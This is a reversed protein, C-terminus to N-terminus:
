TDDGTDLGDSPIQAEGDHPLAPGDPSTDGAVSKSNHYCEVYENEQKFPHFAVMSADNCTRWGDDDPPDCHDEILLEFVDDRRVHLVKWLCQDIWMDEGWQCPGSCMQDFTEQCQAIGAGWATVSNKSFVEVPGHLGRWCNNLYVGADEEPHDVLLAQLRQPFFVCDPDTKVTWDYERYEAEDILKKRVTVFIDTNLATGFEGGFSCTLNVNVATSKFSHGLAVSENSYVKSRDCAFINMGKEHQMGLLEQEYTHPLMLAWCFLTIEGGKGANRSLGHCPEGSIVDPNNEGM